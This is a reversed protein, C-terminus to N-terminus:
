GGAAPHSRSGAFLLVTHESGPKPALTEPERVVLPAPERDLGLGRTSGCDLTPPRRTVQEHALTEGSKSLRLEKTSAPQASNQCLVPDGPPTLHRGLSPGPRTSTLGSTSTAARTTSSPTTTATPRAACGELWVASATRTGAPAARYRPAGHRGGAHGGARAQAASPTPTCITRPPRSAQGPTAVTTFSVATRIERRPPRAETRGGPTPPAPM